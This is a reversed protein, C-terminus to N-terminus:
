NSQRDKLRYQRQNGVKVHQQANLSITHLATITFTNPFHGPRFKQIPETNNSLHALLKATSIVALLARQFSPTFFPPFHRQHGSFSASWWVRAEMLACHKAFLPQETFSHICAQIYNWPIQTLKFHKSQPFGNLQM